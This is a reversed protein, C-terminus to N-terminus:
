DLQGGSGLVVCRFGVVDSGGGPVGYYRFAARCFVPDNSFGGGRLVRYTGQRPGNPDTQEGAGYPGYWDVCWEWVNGSLDQVGQPTAGLPYIGVPTPEGVHMMFNAHHASPEEDGWPYKRGAEGRAAYEWQAETPLSVRRESRAGLWACYADAEYWSV